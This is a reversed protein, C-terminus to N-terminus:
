RDNKNSEEEEELLSKDPPLTVQDQLTFYCVTIIFLLWILLIQIFRNSITLLIATIYINYFFWCVFFRSNSSTVETGKGNDSSVLNEFRTNLEHRKNRDKEM